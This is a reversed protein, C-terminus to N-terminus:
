ATTIDDTDLTIAALIRDPNGDCSLRYVRRRTPRPSTGATPPSGRTASSASVAPLARIVIVRPVSVEQTSTVQRGV